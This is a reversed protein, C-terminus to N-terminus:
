PAFEVATVWPELLKGYRLRVRYLPDERKEDRYLNRGPARFGDSFPRPVHIVSPIEQIYGRVDSPRPHASTYLSVRIVAPVILVRSRDPYRSRLVAPDRAADIAALQSSQRRQYDVTTMPWFLKAQEAQAIRLEIEIWKRWAAGNYELAVFASRAGQRSYFSDAQPTGPDVRCDFGLEVLKTRNLWVRGELDEAKVITSYRPNGPDVWRLGLSVGSDDASRYCTLERDTMVIEADPEGSRNRAAHMLAFANALLVLAGAAALSAYKM